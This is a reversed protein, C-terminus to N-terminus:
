VTNPVSGAVKENIVRAAERAILLEENTPICMIKVTSEDNSIIGEGVGCDFNKENDLQLGLYDMDECVMQRLEPSNEGIGATFILIDLGNMQAIYAGIYHKIRYVFVDVALKAREHGERVKEMIERARPDDAYASATLFLASLMFIPISLMFRKFALGSIHFLM